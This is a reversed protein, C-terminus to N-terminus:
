EEFDLIGKRYDLDFQDLKASSDNMLGKSTLFTIWERECDGSLLTDDLDFIIFKM